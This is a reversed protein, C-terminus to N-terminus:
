TTVRSACSAPLFPRPKNKTGALARPQMHLHKYTEVLAPLQQNVSSALGQSAPSQSALPLTAVLVAVFVFRPHM